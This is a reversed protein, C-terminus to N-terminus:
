VAAYLSDLMWWFRKQTKNALVEAHLELNSAPPLCPFGQVMSVTHLLVTICSGFICQHVAQIM